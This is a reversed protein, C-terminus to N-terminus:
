SWSSASDIAAPDRYQVVAPDRLVRRRLAEARPPGGIRRQGPEHAVGAEEPAARCDARERCTAASGSRTFANCPARNPRTLPTQAPHM